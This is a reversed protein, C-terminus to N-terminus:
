KSASAAGSADRPWLEPACYTWTGDQYTHVEYMQGFLWPLAASGPPMVRESALRVQDVWFSPMRLQYPVRQLEGVHCLLARTLVQAQAETIEVALNVQPSDRWFGGKIWTTKGLNPVEELAKKLVTYTASHTPHQDGFHPSVILDPRINQLADNLTKDQCLTFGLIKLSESLEGMRGEQRKEDSGLSFPYVFVKSRHEQSLRFAIAGLTVEDDPHPIVLLVVKPMLYSPSRPGVKALTGGM